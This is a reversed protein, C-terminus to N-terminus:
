VFLSDFSFRFFVSCALRERLKSFCVDNPQREGLAARANSVKLNVIKYLVTKPISYEWKGDGEAAEDVPPAADKKAKGDSM